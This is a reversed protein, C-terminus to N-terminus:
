IFKNLYSNILRLDDSIEALQMRLEGIKNIAGDFDSEGAKLEIYKAIEWTEKASIMGVLGKISHAVERLGASDNNNICKDVEIDLSTYRRNYIEELKVISKSNPSIRKQLDDYDIRRLEKLLYDKSNKGKITKDENNIQQEYIEKSVEIQKNERNDESSVVKAQKDLQFISSIIEYFERQYFPKALYKQAGAKLAKNKEESSSFASIAVIPIKSNNGSLNRVEKITKMGDMKPMQIDLLLCDFSHEKLAEIVEIGDKVSKYQGNFRSIISEILFLNVENDDAVLFKLPKNKYYFPLNDIKLLETKLENKMAKVPIIFKLSISDPIIEKLDIDISGNMSNLIMILFTLRSAFKRTLSSHYPDFFEIKNDISNKIEEIKSKNIGSILCILEGNDEDKKNFSINVIINNNICVDSAYDIFAMLIHRIHDSDAFVLEPINQSKEFKIIKDNRKSLFSTYEIVEDLMNKLKFISNNIKIKGNQFETIDFMDNVLSKLSKSSTKLLDAIQKQKENNSLSLALESLGIIATLPTRIEHSANALLRNRVQNAEEASNKAEILKEEIEKFVSIDHINLLIAEKSAYDIFSSTVEATFKDGNAKKFCCESVVVDSSSPIHYKLQNTAVIMNDLRKGILSDSYGFSSQMSKNVALITSDEINIVCIPDPTHHLILQFNTQASEINKINESNLTIGYLVLYMIFIVLMAIVLLGVQTISNTIFNSGFVVGLAILISTVFVIVPSILSLTNPVHFKQSKEYKFRRVLILTSIIFTLFSELYYLYIAELPLPNYHGNIVYAFNMDLFFQIISGIFAVFFGSRIVMSNKKSLIKTARITVVIAFCKALLILIRRMIRNIINYGYSLYLSFLLLPVYWLLSFKKKSYALEFNSRALDVAFFIVLIQLFANIRLFGGVGLFDFSRFINILGLSIFIPIAVGTHLTKRSDPPTIGILMGFIILFIGSLYIYSTPETLPKLLLDM